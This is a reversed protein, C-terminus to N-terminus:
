AAWEYLAETLQYRQRFMAPRPHHRQLMPLSIQAQTNALLNAVIPENQSQEIIEPHWSIAKGDPDIWVKHRDFLRHHNRCLALGNWTRDTSGPASAPYIHAGELLGLGIGCMACKCGYADCVDRGFAARRVLRSVAVRTRESSEDDDQELLGSASAADSVSSPDLVVNHILAEVFAPILRPHMAVITEGTGSQYESWGTLAAEEMIGVNFLISFRAERGVRTAGSVAVVIETGDVAGLGLLIPIAGNPADVPTRNGPNQFRREYDARAHTSINSVHLSITSAGQATQVRAIGPWGDRPDVPEVSPGAIQCIHEFLDSRAM